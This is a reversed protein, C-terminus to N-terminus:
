HNPQKVNILLAQSLLEGEDGGTIEQEGYTYDIEAEAGEAEVDSEEGQEILNVVGCRPCINSRHGQQGCRYCKDTTPRSYPNRQAEPPMPLDMKMRFAHQERDRGQHYDPRNPRLLREAYEEDDSLEEEPALQERPIPHHGHVRDIRGGHNERIREEERQQNVGTNLRALTAQIAQLAQQTEHQFTRFEVQTIINNEQVRGNLAEPEERPNAMSCYLSQYWSVYRFSQFFPPVEASHHRWSDEDHM